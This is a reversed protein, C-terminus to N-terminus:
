PQHLLQDLQEALATLRDATQDTNPQAVQDSAAADLVEL